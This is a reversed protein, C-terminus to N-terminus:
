SRVAMKIVNSVRPDASPKSDWDNAQIARRIFEDRTEQKPVPPTNRKQKEIENFYWDARIAQWGRLIQMEAAAIPEGTKIYEQVQLKAAYVTLPKKVTRKRHDIIAAALEDGLIPSLIDMIEKSM